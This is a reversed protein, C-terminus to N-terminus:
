GRTRWSLMLLVSQFLCFGSLGFALGSTFGYSHLGINLLNVGFWSLAVIVTLFALLVMVWYKSLVNAVSGHFIWVLWLVILLAGNEKPDWGWFRGWSQDAWVGGLVTGVLTFLLSLLGIFYAQKYLKQRWGKSDDAFYPAFLWGHALLACVLCLAYGISIITVHTALWFNTNLVAVLVQLSDQSMLFFDAILLLGLALSVMGFGYFNSKFRFMFLITCVVSILSVFIVTEYLTSIPPRQLIIVRLVVGALHVGGGCVILIKQFAEAYKFPSLASLALVVLAGVYLFMAGYFPSLANYLREASLSFAGGAYGASKEKQTVFFSNLAKEFLKFDQEDYANVAEQWYKLDDTAIGKFFADWLSYYGGDHLLVQFFDHQKGGFELAEMQYRTLAIHAEEESYVLVDAGKNKVIAELREKLDDRKDRMQYLSSVDEEHFIPMFLSLSQLINEFVTKKEFLDLFLEQEQTLSNAPAQLIEGMDHEQKSFYSDLELLSAYKLNDTESSKVQGRLWKNKLYFVPRKTALDPEFLAEQFWKKAFSHSVFQDEQFWRFYNLAVTEVPKVRGEHLIPLSFLAEQPSTDAEFSFSPASVFLFSLFACLFLWGRMLMM